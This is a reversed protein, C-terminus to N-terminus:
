PTDVASGGLYISSEGSIQCLLDAPEDIDALAEGVWVRWQMAQLRALTLDAIAATSWPLATFLSPHFTRLGLLVYGGDRAPILAAEHEELAAAAERLQLASLTPCDTGILLIRRGAELHRQAARALRAGLDGEGQASTELRNNARGIEKGVLPLDQGTWDPHTIAPSACLEVPGLNAALAQALTFQLLRAALRAAGAAGLAPILRTKVQGPVPAKAFVLIRVETV